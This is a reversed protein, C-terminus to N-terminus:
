FERGVGIVMGLKTGNTVPFGIKCVLNYYTVVDFGLGAGSIWRNALSNKFENQSQQVYAFDVFATPYIAIPIQNFQKIALFPLKFIRNM